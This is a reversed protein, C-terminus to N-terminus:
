KRASMSWTCEGAILTGDKFVLFPDLFDLKGRGVLDTEFLILVRMDSTPKWSSALSFYLGDV